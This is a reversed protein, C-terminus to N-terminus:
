RYRRSVAAFVVAPDGAPTYYEAGGKYRRSRRKNNKKRKNSKKNSKAM